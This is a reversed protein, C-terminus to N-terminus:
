QPSAQGCGTQIACDVRQSSLKAAFCDAFPSADGPVPVAFATACGNAFWVTVTRGRLGCDFAWQYTLENLKDQASRSECACSTTTRAACSGADLVQVLPLSADVDADMGPAADAGAGPLVDGCQLPRAYSYSMWRPGVDLVVVCSSIARTKGDDYTCKLRSTWTCADQTQEITSACADPQTFPGFAYCGADDYEASQGADVVAGGNADSPGRADPSASADVPAGVGDPNAGDYGLADVADTSAHRDSSADDAATRVTQGGCSSCLLAVMSWPRCLVLGRTGLCGRLRAAVMLRLAYCVAATRGEDHASKPIRTCCLPAM